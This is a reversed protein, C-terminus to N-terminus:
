DGLAGSIAASLRHADARPLAVYPAAMEAALAQLGRQPRNATDIMIAPTGTALVVHAMRRAEAEATPRDATGDLAINARGDTLVVITPTMGHGRSMDAVELAMRLGAALPTGGGGPLAALRRKTQVLSRTPPLLLEAGTGRFAVLAVNDRRAYAEALLLEVAGKAEALRAMASSGSADVTFILVRDSKEQYRKLRIDSQRIQVVVDERPTQERRIRQWPAAARLTGVLDIRAGSDLHGARSPLPSGRRNGKRAAGTGSAGKAARAARGAALRGLLDAPLAAKVAELLLEDPITMEEPRASEEEPPEEPQENEPPPPPPAEQEDEEPPAEEPFRTARHAFVMEAARQIDEDAVAEAGRLAALARAAALALLPARLSSIGLVMGMRALQAPVDAPVHIGPLRDRAAQLAAADMQIPQTESWVVEDLDVFLALRDALAPLLTEEPGAGEDLAILCPGDGDLAGGLRAALGSPAREAMALVVAVPEALIGKGRVPRGAALTAALDLGGYLADDGIFPHIRRQPLPIAALAETVRDRVAGARARLWLGKLGTPDVALLAM